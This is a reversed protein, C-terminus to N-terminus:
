YHYPLILCSAIDVGLPTLPKPMGTALHSAQYRSLVTTDHLIQNM